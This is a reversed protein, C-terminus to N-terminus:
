TYFIMSEKKGYYYYYYYYARLLISDFAGDSVTYTMESVVTELCDTASTSFVLFLSFVSIDLIINRDVIFM